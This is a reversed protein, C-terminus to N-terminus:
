YLKNPVHVIICRRSIAGNLDAMFVDPENTCVIMPTRPPILINTYRIRITRYLQRDVLQTIQVANWSSFDHDDIIVGGEWASYSVLQEISNTVFADPLLARALSTKGTGGPGWLVLTLSNASNHRWAEVSSPLKFEELDYAPPANRQNDICIQHLNSIVTNRQLIFRQEYRSKFEQIAENVRGQEALEIISPTAALTGDGVWDGGKKIYKIINKYARAPKVNPHHGKVDFLRVDSTDLRREFHLLAHLHPTGDQHRERAALYGIIALPADLGALTTSLGDRLEQVTLDCRPYTLFVRVGRYRFRPEKKEEVDEQTLAKSEGDSDEVFVPWMVEKLHWYRPHDLVGYM